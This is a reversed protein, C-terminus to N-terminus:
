RPALYTALGERLPTLRLDFAELLNSTDALADGTVFEVADPSLPPNPLFQAVTGAAKPLFAPFHILPKRKGMVDMATSLVKNMSMVEPGGIEFTGTPGDAEAAQALAEAVDDIFVPQLWQEGDGVVPVFPLWRSLSV